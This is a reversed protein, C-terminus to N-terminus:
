RGASQQGRGRGTRGAVGVASPAPRCWVPDFSLRAPDLGFTEAGVQRVRQPPLLLQLCAHHALFRMDSPVGAPVVSVVGSPVPGDHVVGECSM